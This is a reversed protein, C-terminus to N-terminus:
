IVISAAVNKPTHFQQWDRDDNFRQVRDRLDQITTETDDMM